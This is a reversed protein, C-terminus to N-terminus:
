LSTLRWLKLSNTPIPPYSLPVSVGLEYRLASESAGVVWTNEEVMFQSNRSPAAQPSAECPKRPKPNFLTTCKLGEQSSCFASPTLLLVLFVTELLAVVPGSPPTMHDISLKELV